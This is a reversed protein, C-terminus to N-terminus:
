PDRGYSLMKQKLIVSVLCTLIVLAAYVTTAILASGSVASGSWGGASIGCYFLFGDGGLIVVALPVMVRRLREPDFGEAEAEGPTLWSELVMTWLLFCSVVLLLALIHALSLRHWGEYGDFSGLFPLKSIRQASSPIVLRLGEATLGFSILGLLGKVVFQWMLYKFRAMRM